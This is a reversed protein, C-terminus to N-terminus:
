FSFSLERTRIPEKNIKEFFINILTNNIIYELYEEQFMKDLSHLEIDFLKEHGELSPKVTGVMVCEGTDRHQFIDGFKYEVSAMEKPTFTLSKSVMEQKSILLKDLRSFIEKVEEPSFQPVIYSAEFDELSMKRNFNISLMGFLSTIPNAPNAELTISDKDIEKVIRELKLIKSLVIEGVCPLRRMKVIENKESM